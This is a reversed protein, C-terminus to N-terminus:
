IFYMCNQYRNMNNVLWKAQKAKLKWSILIEKTVIRFMEYSLTPLKIMVFIRRIFM